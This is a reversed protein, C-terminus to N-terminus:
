TRVRLVNNGTPAVTTPSAAPASCPGPRRNRASLGGATATTARKRCAAALGRPSTGPRREPGLACCVCRTGLGCRTGESLAAAPCRRRRRAAGEGVSGLGSGRRRSAERLRGHAFACWGPSEKAVSSSRRRSLAVAPSKQRPRGSHAASPPPGVGPRTTLGFGPRARSAMAM